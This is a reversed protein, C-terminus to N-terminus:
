AAAALIRDHAGGRGEQQPDLLYIQFEVNGPREKVHQCIVHLLALGQPCECYEAKTYM